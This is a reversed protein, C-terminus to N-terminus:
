IRFTQLFVLRDRGALPPAPSHQFRIPQNPLYGIREFVPVMREPLIAAALVGVSSGAEPLPAVPVQQYQAVVHCCVSRKFTPKSSSKAAKASCCKKPASLSLRETGHMRCARAYTTLGTSTLLVLAAM